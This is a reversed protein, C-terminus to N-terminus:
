NIRSSIWSLPRNESKASKMRLETGRKGGLYLDLPMAKYDKAKASLASLGGFRSKGIGKEISPRRTGECLGSGPHAGSTKV